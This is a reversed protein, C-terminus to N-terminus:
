ICIRCFPSQASIVHENQFHTQQPRIYQGSLSNFGWFHNSSFGRFRDFAGLQLLWDKKSARIPAEIVHARTKERKLCFVYLVSYNASSRDKPKALNCTQDAWVSTASGSAPSSRFVQIITPPATASPISDSGVVSWDWTSVCWPLSTFTSEMNRMPYWSFMSGQILSELVQITAILNM